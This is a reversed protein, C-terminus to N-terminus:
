QLEEADERGKACVITLEELEEALRVNEERVSILEETLKLEKSPDKQGQLEERLKRNEVQLVQLELRM